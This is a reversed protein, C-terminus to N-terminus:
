HCQSNMTKAAFIFNPSFSIRWNFHVAYSFITVINQVKSHLQSKRCGYLLEVFLDYLWPASAARRRVYIEADKRSVSSFHFQLHDRSFSHSADRRWSCGMSQAWQWGYERPADITENKWQIKKKWEKERTRKTENLEYSKFVWKRENLHDHSSNSTWKM